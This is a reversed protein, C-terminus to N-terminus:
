FRSYRHLVVSDWNYPLSLIATNDVHMINAMHTQVNKVEMFPMQLVKEM